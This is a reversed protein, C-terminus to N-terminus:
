RLSVTVRPQGTANLTRAACASVRISPNQSYPGGGAARAGARAHPQHQPARRLADALSAAGHARHDGAAALLLMHHDQYSIPGTEVRHAYYTTIRTRFLPGVSGDQDYLSFYFAIKDDVSGSLMTSFGLLLERFDLKGSGDADMHEYMQEVMFAALSWFMAARKLFM